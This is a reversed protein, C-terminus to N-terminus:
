CTYKSLVFRLTPSGYRVERKTPIPQYSDDESSDEDFQCTIHVKKYQFDMEHVRGQKLLFMIILSLNINLVHM